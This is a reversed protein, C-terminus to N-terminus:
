LPKLSVNMHGGGRIAFPANCKNFIRVAKEVQDAISPLFICAPSLNSRIDWFNTAEATYNASEPTLLASPYLSQLQSCACVSSNSAQFYGLSTTICSSTTANSAAGAVVATLGLMSSAILAITTMKM